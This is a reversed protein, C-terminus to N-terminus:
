KLAFSKASTEFDPHRTTYESIDTTYTIVWVTEGSKLLYQDAKSTGQAGLLKSLDYEEILLYAEFGPISAENQGVITIGDVAQLQALSADVYDQITYDTLAANQERIVNVNTYTNNTNNKVTDVAYLLIFGANAEVSQALSEQGADRFMQAIRAFDQQNSGGDFTSPLTFSFGDGEFTEWSRPSAAGGGAGCATLLLGFALVLVFVPFKGAHKM